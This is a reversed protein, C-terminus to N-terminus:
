TLHKLEILKVHPVAFFKADIKHVHDENEIEDMTNVREELNSSDTKLQLMFLQPNTTNM